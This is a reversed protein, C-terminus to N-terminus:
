HGPALAGDAADDGELWPLRMGGAPQRTRPAPAPPMLLEDDFEDEPLPAPAVAAAMARTNRELRIFLKIGEALALLLLSGLLGGAIWAGVLLLRQRAEPTPALLGDGGQVDRLLEFVNWGGVALVVVAAGRLVFALARLAPYCPGGTSSMHRM